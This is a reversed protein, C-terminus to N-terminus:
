ARNIMERMIEAMLPQVADAAKQVEEHSVEVIKGEVGLDTIVSIGFCKIGCHNAVIVEPVTSMGVADAGWARFMKYEAPTEYTPGQTALYIGEQVKIGKEAAITKAQRVLQQDYAEHMDVFRPGTPFNKGRLPNEPLANIQDTIDSSYSENGNGVEISLAGRRQPLYEWDGRLKFFIQKRKFVFGIEPHLRLQKDRDFTKSIRFQQKYTIGNRASYGLQFPNLLGSYKIRTSKYDMNVSNTLHSTLHIYQRINRVTDKPLTDAKTERRAYLLEEERSLPIDRYAHWYATDRVIPVTDPLETHSTLDLSKWKRKWEEEDMREVKKYSFSSHYSTAVVNGLLKYRLFLDAKEPLFFRRYDRGFEMVVNFEAFSYRGNMDIKHIGWSRDFIYLYGCVLKQSWQKPLFRIKFVRQGNLWLIEDLNFSYFRFANDAIPLFIADDYATPSYVNLNLFALAEQRKSENPVSNGNVAQINHIYDYPANYRSQSVMEFLMDKNRWDVPFIHHALRMLINQKLIETRGKIYIEAEYMSITHRYQAAKGIALRMISDAQEQTTSRNEEGISLIKDSHTDANRAEASIHVATLILILIWRFKKLSKEKKSLM